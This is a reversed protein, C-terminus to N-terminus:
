VEVYTRPATSDCITVKARSPRHEYLIDNKPAHFFLNRRLESAYSDRSLALPLRSLPFFPQALLAGLRCDWLGDITDFVHYSVTYHRPSVVCRLESPCMRVASSLAVSEISGSVAFHASEIPKIHLFEVLTLERFVLFECPTCHTLSRLQGLSANKQTLGSAPNGRISLARVRPITITAESQPLRKRTLLQSRVFQYM